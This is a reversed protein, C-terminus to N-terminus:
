QRTGETTLQLTQGDTYTAVTRGALAGNALRMVTRTTVQVDKRVTSAYPGAETVVSDGDVALVRLPVPDRGPFQLNWGSETGTAVLQFTVLVSDSGERRTAMNWTGALDALSIGTAAAAAPMDAAPKEARACALALLLPVVRILSKM